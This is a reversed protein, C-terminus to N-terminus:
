HGLRVEEVSNALLGIAPLHEVLGIKKDVARIMAAIRESPQALDVRTGYLLKVEDTGGAFVAPIGVRMCLRNLLFQDLEPNGDGFVRGDLGRNELAVFVTGGCRFERGFDGLQFADTAAISKM